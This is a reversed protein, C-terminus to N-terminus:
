RIIGPDAHRAVHIRTIVLSLLGRTLLSNPRRQHLTCIKPPALSGFPRFGVVFLKLEALGLMHKASQSASGRGLTHCRNSVSALGRQM